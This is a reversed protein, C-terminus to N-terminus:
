FPIDDDSSHNQPDQIIDFLMQQGSRSNGGQQKSIGTSLVGDSSPSKKKRRRHLLSMVDFMGNCKGCCVELPAAGTYNEAQCEPCCWTYGSAKLNVSTM